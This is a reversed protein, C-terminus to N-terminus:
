DLCSGAFSVCRSMRPLFQGAARLGPYCAREVGPEPAWRQIIRLPESVHAIEITSQSGERLVATGATEGRCCRIRGLGEPMRAPQIGIRYTGATGKSPCSTDRRKSPRVFVSYCNAHSAGNVASIPM